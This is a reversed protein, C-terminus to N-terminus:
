WHIQHFLYFVRGILGIETDKVVQTLSLMKPHGGLVYNQLEIQWKTGCNVWPRFLVIKKEPNELEPKSGRCATLPQPPLLRPDSFELFFIKQVILAM